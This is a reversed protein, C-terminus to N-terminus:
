LVKRVFLSTSLVREHEYTEDSIFIYEEELPLSDHKSM